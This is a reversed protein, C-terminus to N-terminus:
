RTVVFALTCTLLWVLAALCYARKRWTTVAIIARDTAQKTEEVV